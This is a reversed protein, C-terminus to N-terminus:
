PSLNKPCIVSLSIIDRKSLFNKMCILLHIDLFIISLTQISSECFFNCIVLLCIFICEVESTILVILILTLYQKKFSM